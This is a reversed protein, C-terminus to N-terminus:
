THEQVLTVPFLLTSMREGKLYGINCLSVFPQWGDDGFYISFM